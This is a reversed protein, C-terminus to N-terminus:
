RLHVVDGASVALQDGATQLLLRGETDVDLATGRAADGGPFEVRVPRGLTVIEAAMVLLAAMAVAWPLFRRASASDDAELSGDPRRKFQYTEMEGAPVPTSDALVPIAAAPVPSSLTPSSPSVIAMSAVSGWQNQM